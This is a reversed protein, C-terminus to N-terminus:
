RLLHIDGTYSKIRNQANRIVIQYVYVGIPQENDRFTGDWEKTADDHIKEGWRNFVKFEEIELNGFISPGFTDNLGDGNPSFANPLGIQSNDVVEFSIIDTVTCNGVQATVVFEITGVENGTYIFTPGTHTTGDSGQWTYIISSDPNVVTLTDSSGLEIDDIEVADLPIPAQVIVNITDVATCGNEDVVIVSYNGSSGVTIVKTTDGNSWLYGDFIGANLQVVEGNCISTPGDPIIDVAIANSSEIRGTTTLTCGNADTIVLDYLGPLLTNFTNSSQFTVGGDISYQIPSAGGTTNIVMSGDPLGCDADQIDLLSIALDPIPILNIAQQTICGNADQVHVNYVGASLGTFINGSQLNLGNDISYQYPPTGGLAIIELEGDNDNCSPSTQNVTSLTVGGGDSLIIQQAVQCGVADEVVVFYTGPGLNGFYSTSVFTVGNDISYQYPLTGGVASVDIYGDTLGCSPNNFTPSLVPAGLNGLGVTDILTCGSADVVLIPYLGSGLNSFLGNSSFTVGGDISYDYVPMGGSVQIDISGDNMGCSPQTLIINDFVPEPIADLIVTQTAICGNIDTVIVNYTNGTLGTYTGMGQYTMGNDISYQYPATGGSAFIDIVGNPASCQTPNQTLLSDIVVNGDDAVIVSVMDICGLADKVSVDYTGPPLNIFTAPLQYNTGNDISYEYPYLGGSAIVVIVGNTEDCTTNTVFTNDINPASGGGLIISVTSVQCGVSDEILITYTGPPLNMFINSAQFTTGGDISYMYMPSGASVLVEISGDSQGCAPNSSIVNDVIPANPDLLVVITTDYCGNADQVVINYTNASLGSFVNAAGYTIGNNISYQLPPTGGTATITIMGDSASCTTPDTTAVQVITTAPSRDIIAVDTQTCGNADTVLINYTGPMLNPFVSSQQATTGGNISYQIPPTGGIVSIAILGNQLGCTQDLVTVSNIVPSLDETLFVVSTSSCGNTGEVVINYTGGPLNTFVNTSVFTTGGDISYMFPPFGGTANITISGNTSGCAPNTTTISTISPSGSGSVTITTMTSCNNSDMVVIDYNGAPLGNFINSPQFTTGNDISYMYPPIGGLVSINISGTSGTCSSPTVNVAQIIPGNSPSLTSSISSQCGAADTVVIQYTGSSLNFAANTSSVNPNWVWTYPPTGSNLTVVISGDSAGCVPDSTTVTPNLSCCNIVNVTKTTTVLCGNNSTISLTIVKVGATTYSVTHPGQANAIAPSAGVGFLWDWDVISGGPYTSLDAVNVTDGICITTDSVMFDPTPGAFEGTGGFNVTFGAGTSTYNNIALAYTQGAVMVLEALYNDDGVQCGAQEAVDISTSNLGTPGMCPSASSFDGSAMCRLVIKGACNGVGNPLQYLIFDMDDNPDTPILDFTVTGNNAATWIYWASNTEINTVGGFCLGDDMENVNSGGGIVSNVTFGAKDCLVVGTPCDSQPTPPPIYNNICLQFTGTTFRTDVRILYTQGPTLGGKYLSIIGSITLDAVCEEETIGLACTGSYLVAEQGAMTGGSTGGATNGIITIDVDTATATFSFWVDSVGAAMCTASPFGNIDTAGTTTYQGFTSCFNQVNNLVIANNCDNNMPQAFLSSLPILSFFLLCLISNHLRM